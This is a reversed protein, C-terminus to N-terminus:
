ENNMKGERAGVCTSSGEMEEKRFAVWITLMEKYDIDLVVYDDGGRYFVQAKGLQSSDERDPDVALKVARIEGLDLAYPLWVESNLGLDALEENECLVNCELIGTGRYEMIDNILNELIYIAPTVGLTVRCACRCAVLEAIAACALFYM